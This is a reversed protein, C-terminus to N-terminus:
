GTIQVLSWIVLNAVQRGVYLSPGDRGLLKRKWFCNGNWSFGWALFSSVSLSWIGKKTPLWRKWEDTERPNMWLGRVGVTNSKEATPNKHPKEMDGKGSIYGFKILTIGSLPLPFHTRQPISCLSSLGSCLFFLGNQLLLVLPKAHEGNPVLWEPLHVLLSFGTEPGTSGQLEKKRTITNTSPNKFKKSQKM